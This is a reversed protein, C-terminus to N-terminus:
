LALSIRMAKDVELMRNSRLTGLKRLLRTKDLTLLQALNVM